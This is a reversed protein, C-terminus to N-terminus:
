VSQRLKQNTACEKVFEFVSERQQDTYHTTKESSRYRFYDFQKNIYSRLEIDRYEEDTITSEVEHNQELNKEDQEFQPKKNKNADLSPAVLTEPYGVSQEEEKTQEESKSKKVKNEEFASFFVFFQFMWYNCNLDYYNPGQLNWTKNM